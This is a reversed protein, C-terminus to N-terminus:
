IENIFKFIKMNPHQELNQVALLAFVAHIVQLLQM